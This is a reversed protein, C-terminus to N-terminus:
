AGQSKSKHDPAPADLSLTTMFEEEALPEKSIFLACILAIGPACLAFIGWLLASRGRGYAIKVTIWILAAWIAIQLLPIVDSMSTTRRVSVISSLLITARFTQFLVLFDVVGM